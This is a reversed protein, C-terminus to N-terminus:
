ECALVARRGGVWWRAQSHVDCQMSSPRSPPTACDPPSGVHSMCPCTHALRPQGDTTCVTPVFRRSCLGGCRFLQGGLWAGGGPAVGQEIIAVQSPATPPSPLLLFTTPHGPCPLRGRSPAPLCAPTRAPPIEAWLPHLSRTLDEGSSAGEQRVRRAMLYESLGYAGGQWRAESYVWWVRGRGGQCRPVQVARLRLGPGRFRRGRHRRGGATTLPPKTSPLFHPQNHTIPFLASPPELLRGCGDRCGNHRHPDPCALPAPGAAILAVDLWSAAVCRLM